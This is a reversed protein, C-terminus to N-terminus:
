ANLEGLEALLKLSAMADQEDIISMAFGVHILVWCGLLKNKDEDSLYSINISRQVGSVDATANWQDDISVVKGPVGLCM